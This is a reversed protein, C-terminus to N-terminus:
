YKCLRKLALTQYSQARDVLVIELSKRARLFVNQALEQKNQLRTKDFTVNM